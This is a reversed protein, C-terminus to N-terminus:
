YELKVCAVRDACAWGDALERTPHGDCGIPDEYVNVWIIRQKKESKVWIIPSAICDSGIDYCLQDDNEAACGACLEKRPASKYKIGNVITKM